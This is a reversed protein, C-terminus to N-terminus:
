TPLRNLRSVKAIAIAFVNSFTSRESVNSLCRRVQLSLLSSHDLVGAPATSEAGGHPCNDFRLVEDVVPEPVAPVLVPLTTVRGVGPESFREPRVPVLSREPGVAGHPRRQIEAGDRGPSRVRRRRRVCSISHSASHSILPASLAYTLPPDNSNM